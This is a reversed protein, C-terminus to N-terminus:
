SWQHLLDSKNLVQIYPWWFSKDQKKNEYLLFVTLTLQIYDPHLKGFYKLNKMFIPKLVPCNKALDLSIICKVPISIFAKNAPITRKAAIGILGNAFVAPYEIDNDFVAGNDLLWNKFIEHKTNELALQDTLDRNISLIAPVQFQKSFEIQIEAEVM